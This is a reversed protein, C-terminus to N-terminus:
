DEGALGLAGRLTFGGESEVFLAEELCNTFASLDHDIVEVQQVGSGAALDAFTTPPNQQGVGVFVFPASLGTPAIYEDHSISGDGDADLPLPSGTTYIGDDILAQTLRNWGAVQNGKFDHYMGGWQLRLQDSVDMDFSAQILTQETSSNDYYSDSDEIEGYIYFGMDRGFINGPGGVEATLM